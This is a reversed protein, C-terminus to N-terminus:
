DVDAWHSTEQPVDETPRDDGTLKLEHPEVACTCPAPKIPHGGHGIHMGSTPAPIYDAMEEIGVVVYASNSDDRRYTFSARTSPGLQNLLAARTEDMDQPHIDPFALTIIGPRDLRTAVYTFGHGHPCERIEWVQHIIM